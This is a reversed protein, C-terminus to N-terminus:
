RTSIPFGLVTNRTEAPNRNRPMRVTIPPRFSITFQGTISAEFASSTRTKQNASTEPSSKVPPFVDPEPAVRREVSDHRATECGKVRFRGGSVQDCPFIARAARKREDDNEILKRAVDVAASSASERAVRLREGDRPPREVSAEVMRKPRDLSREKVKRELMGFTALILVAGDGQEAREPIRDREIVGNTVAVDDGAEPAKRM